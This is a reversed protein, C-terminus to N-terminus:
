AQSPEKLLASRGLTTLKIEERWWDVLERADESLREYAADSVRLPPQKGYNKYDRFWPRNYILTLIPRVVQGRNGLGRHACRYDTIVAGGLPVQPDQHAGDEATDTPTRHTGKYVRTTGSWEDLPILPVIIQTAFPPLTHHWPTDPFLPPHDKHLRQDKSGPLSIVATFAGLVCNSGLVSHIIPMLMPANLVDDSGFQEDLDVTLMYRKDGLFLADPHDGEHFYPEYREFFARQLQEIFEVPFANDVQLVGHTEFLEAGLAVKEHPPARARSEEPTFRLVPMAEPARAQERWNLLTQARQQGNRVATAQPDLTLAKAYHDLAEDLRLQATRAHALGAHLDARAAARPLAEEFAEGAVEFDGADLSAQAFESLANVDDPNKAVQDQLLRRGRRAEGQQVYDQAFARATKPDKSALWDALDLLDSLRSTITHSVARRNARGPFRAFTLVFEMMGACMAAPVARQLTALEAYGEDALARLYAALRQADPRDALRQAVASNPSMLVSALTCGQFLGHLSWGAPAVTADDWDFLKIQGDPLVAANPPRLDGHSLTPPLEAALWIHAEILPMRTALLRAYRAASQHGLFYAAQVPGPPDTEDLSPDDQANADAALFALLRAPLTRLESAPLGALLEPCRAAQAQMRADTLMLAMLQEDTADYDLTTGGHPQSLLWGHQADIAIVPPVQQPFQAAVRQTRLVPQGHAPPLVKLYATQPGHVLRYTTAWAQRTLVEHTDFAFHSQAWDLAPFEAPLDDKPANM